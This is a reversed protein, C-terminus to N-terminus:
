STLDIAVLVPCDLKHKIKYLERQEDADCSHCSYEDPENHYSQFVSFNNVVAKAVAIVDHENFKSM